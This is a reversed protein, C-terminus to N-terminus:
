GAINYHLDEWMRQIEAAMCQFRAVSDLFHETSEPSVNGKEIEEIEDMISPAREMLEYRARFFQLSEECGEGLKTSVSPSRGMADIFDIHSQLLERILKIHLSAMQADPTCPEANSPFSVSPLGLPKFHPKGFAYSLRPSRLAATAVCAGPM